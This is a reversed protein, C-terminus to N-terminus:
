SERQLHNNLAVVDGRSKSLIGNVTNPFFTPNPLVINGLTPDERLIIASNLYLWPIPASPELNRSVRSNAQSKSAYIQYSQPKPWYIKNSAYLEYRIRLM